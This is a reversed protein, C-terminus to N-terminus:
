FGGRLTQSPSQGYKLRYAAAFRGTHTFGWRMAVDTVTAEDNGSLLDARVRALRVDNLYTRPSAGVYEHFGEQLRRISVGAVAAMDSATWPRAPDDHMQDLVRKIIRPRPPPAQGDSEPVAALLFGAALAGSLQERVLPHQATASSEALSEVLRLWNAGAGPTLHLQEPLRLVPDALLKAAQQHLYGREFRVGVISRTEARWKVRAPTDPPYVTACDPTALLESHGIASELQGSQPINVAYGGPHTTDVMVAAGWGIRVIRVPGMDASGVTVKAVSGATLPHLTHPFYACAVAHSAEDWDQSKHAGPASM